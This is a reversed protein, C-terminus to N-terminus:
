TTASKIYDNIEHEYADVKQLLTFQNIARDINHESYKTKYYIDNNLYDTLFRLGMIFVMVSISKPLYFLEEKTIQTSISKLFGKTYNKFYEVNFNILSLDTEDESATSCITRLADGYDFLISGQMVTDLDILCIAENQENFLINSIKTDNHTVRLPIKKLQIANEIVMMKEITEKVLSIWKIAKEKRTKSASTLANQFEQFRFSMSHFSPLVEVLNDTYDTTHALFTGTALGAQYAIDNSNVQLFTQSNEIFESLNWYNNEKDEIYFTNKNTPIFRITKVGKQLLFDSIKVKNHIVDIAKKFVTGNIKQLVYNISSNTIILYTDNIHGSSFTQFGKFNADTKFQNFINLLKQKLEM